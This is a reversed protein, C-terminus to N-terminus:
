GLLLLTRKRTTFRHRQYPAWFTMGGLASCRARIALPYIESSIVYAVGSLGSGFAVLYGLLGVVSLWRTGTAFAITLLFLFPVTLFVSRLATFRRGKADITAISVCVGVLQAATLVSSLWIALGPEFGASILIHAGYYMASNIGSFQNLAQIGVGIVLARQVRKSRWIGEEPQSDEDHHTLADVIEAHGTHRTLM